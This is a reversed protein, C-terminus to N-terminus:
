SVAELAARGADTLVCMVQRFPRTPDSCDLVHTQEILGLGLLERKIAFAEDDIPSFAFVSRAGTRARQLGRVLAPRLQGAEAADAAREVSEEDACEGCLFVYEDDVSLEEEAGCRGCRDTM